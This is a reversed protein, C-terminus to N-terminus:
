LGLIKKADNLHKLSEDHKGAKHATEGDARLQKVKAMDADALKGGAAIKDDIAKMQVPCSGAFAATATLALLGAILTKM